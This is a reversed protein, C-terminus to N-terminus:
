CTAPPVLGTYGSALGPHIPACLTEETLSRALTRADTGTTRTVDEISAPHGSLLLRLADRAGPAFTLRRGAATVEIDGGPLDRVRPPFDTVCVVAGTEAFAEVYPVCRGAPREDERARLYDAPTLERALRAAGAALAPDPASRDLDRRFDEHHRSQDALWALWTVGTRRTIGFTVHLSLADGKGRRTARHWHGRPIHLVDGPALEGKWLIEESPENNPEADRYMPYARSTGRVEWDKSGALQVVLVDHDDWHLDFGDAQGTTLYANAQVIERSWWQLARCAVELTPDFVNAEDLVLTCGAFLLAELRRMDVMRIGQGRRTMQDSYYRNPHLESGVQFCRLQPASLSRRMVLDLLGYPTLIRAPLDPSDITGSVFDTGVLDPGHWGLAKEMASVLQHQM